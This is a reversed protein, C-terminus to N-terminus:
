KSKETMYRKKIVVLTILGGVAALVIMSLSFVNVDDSTQPVNPTTGPTEPAHRILFISLSNRTFTVTRNTGTGSFQANTLRNLSGATSLHFLNAPLPGSYNIVITLPNGTGFSTIDTPTGTGTVSAVSVKYVRDTTSNIAIQQASPLSTFTQMTQLTIIISDGQSGTIASLANTAFTITGEPMVIQSTRTSPIKEFFEKPISVATASVSSLNISVPGTGTGSSIMTNILDTDM